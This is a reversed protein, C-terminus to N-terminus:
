YWAATVLFSVKPLPDTQRMKQDQSFSDFFVNSRVVGYLHVGALHELAQEENDAPLHGQVACSNESSHSQIHRTTPKTWGRTMSRVMFVLGNSTNLSAEQSPVTALHPKTTISGSSSVRNTKPPCIGSTKTCCQSLCTPCCIMHSASINAATRARHYRLVFYTLRLHM